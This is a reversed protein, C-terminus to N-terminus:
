KKQDQQDTPSTQKEPEKYLKRLKKIYKTKNPEDIDILQKLLTERKQVDSKQIAYAKKAEILDNKEDENQIKLKKRENWNEILKLVFEFSKVIGILMIAYTLVEALCSGIEFHVNM